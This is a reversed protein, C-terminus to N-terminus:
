LSSTLREIINKEELHQRLRRKDVCVVAKIHYGKKAKIIVMSNRAVSIIYQRHAGQEFFSDFFTTEIEDLSEDKVLPTQKPQRNLSECGKFIVGHIASCALQEDLESMKKINCEITYLFTGNAGVGASAISYQFKDSKYEAATASAAFLLTLSIYLLMFIGKAYINRATCCHTSCNTNMM